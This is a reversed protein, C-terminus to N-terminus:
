LRPNGPDIHGLAYAAVDRVLLDKSRVGDELVKIAPAPNVAVDAYSSAASVRVLPQPHSLSAHLLAAASESNADRYFREARATIDEPTPKRPKARRMVQGPAAAIQAIASVSFRDGSPLIPPFGLADADETSIPPEAIMASQLTAQTRARMAPLDGRLHSGILLLTAAQSHVHDPDTHNRFAEPGAVPKRPSSVSGRGRTRNPM